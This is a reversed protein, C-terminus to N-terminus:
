QLPEGWGCDRKLKLVAEYASEPDEIRYIQDIPCSGDPNFIMALDYIEEVSSPSVGEGKVDRGIAYVYHLERGYADSNCYLSYRYLTDDGLYGNTKAYTKLASEIAEKELHMDGDSKSNIVAIKTCKDPVLPKNWDNKEKLQLIMDNTFMLKYSSSQYVIDNEVKIYPTYCDDQYYYVYGDESKQMIILATGYTGYPFFNENYFFMVRGYEDTEIVEISPDYTTEGNSAYGMAGFVNNVAVTYLDQHEGRYQFGSCAAFGLLATFSLLVTIMRIYSKM